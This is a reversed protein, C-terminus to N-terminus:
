YGYPARGSPEASSLVSDQLRQYFDSLYKGEVNRAYVKAPPEYGSPYNECLWDATLIFQNVSHYNNLCFERPCRKGDPMHQLRRLKTMVYARPGVFVAGIRELRDYEFM